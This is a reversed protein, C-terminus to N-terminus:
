QLDICGLIPNQPKQTGHDVVEHVIEPVDVVAFSGFPDKRGQGLVDFPSPYARRLPSVSLARQKQTTVEPELTPNWAVFSHAAEGARPSDRRRRRQRRLKAAHSAIATRARDSVMDELSTFNVFNQSKMGFGGSESQM